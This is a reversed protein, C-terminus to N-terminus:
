PVGGQIGGEGSRGQQVHAAGGKSESTNDGNALTIVTRGEVVSSGDSRKRELPKNVSGMKDSERPNVEDYLHPKEGKRISGGPHEKGKTKGKELLTPYPSQPHRTEQPEETEKRKRGKKQAEHRSRHHKRRRQHQRRRREGEEDSPRWEEDDKPMGRDDPLIWDSKRDAVREGERARLESDDLPRMERHDGNKWQRRQRVEQHWRMIQRRHLRKLREYRQRLVREQESEKRMRAM